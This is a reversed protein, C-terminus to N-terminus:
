ASTVIDEEQMVQMPEEQMFQMQKQQPPCGICSGDARSGGTMHMQSPAMQVTPLDAEQPGALLTREVAASDAPRKFAFASMALVSAILLKM